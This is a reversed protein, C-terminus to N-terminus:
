RVMRLQDGSTGHTLVTWDVEDLGGDTLVGGPSELQPVQSAREQTPNQLRAVFWCFAPDLREFGLQDSIIEDCGVLQKGSCNSWARVSEGTTVSTTRSAQLHASQGTKPQRLKADRLHRRLHSARDLESNIWDDAKVKRRKG